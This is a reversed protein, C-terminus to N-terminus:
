RKCLAFVGKILIYTFVCVLLGGIIFAYDPVLVGTESIYTDNTGILNEILSKLNEM